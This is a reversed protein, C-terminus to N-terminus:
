ICGTSIYIHLSMRNLIAVLYVKITGMDGNRQQKIISALPMMFRVGQPPGVARAALAKCTSGLATKTGITSGISHAM